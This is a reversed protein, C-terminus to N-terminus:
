QRFREGFRCFGEPRSGRHDRRRLRDVNQETIAERMRVADLAQAGHEKRVLERTLAANEDAYAYANVYAYANEIGNANANANANAFQM